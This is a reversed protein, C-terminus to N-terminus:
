SCNCSGTNSDCVGRYYGKLSCMMSCSLRHYEISRDCQFVPTTSELNSVCIDCFTRDINLVCTKCTSRICNTNLCYELVDVCPKCSLIWSRSTEQALNSQFNLSAILCLLIIFHRM